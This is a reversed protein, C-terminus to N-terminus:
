KKSDFVLWGTDVIIEDKLVSDQMLKVIVKYPFKLDLQALDVMGSAGTIKMKEEEMMTLNNVTNIQIFSNDLPKVAKINLTNGQKDVQLNKPMAIICSMVDTPEEPFVLVTRGDQKVTPITQHNWVDVYHWDDPHSVLMFPGILRNDLSRDVEERGLQYVPYVCKDTVPFANVFVDARLDTVLPMPNDTLYADRNEHIIRSYRHILVRENWSYRNIEGFIDEWVIFGTGNFLANYILEDRDRAGRNINHVNHEPIIFRFLDVNPMKNTANGQQNWSGTVLEAAALDPRGESVFVNDPNVADLATRFAIDSEGMTDLFVGDSGIAKAIEAEREFHGTRGNMIDWPKYPIYVHVDRTHAKDVMEKVGPLGGPLDSYMDFQNRNDIGMRPYDHWLLMYDYGGFNLEGEDLFEDIRFRNDKPDYIDHGYLFTFHSVFRQRYKEQIPRKYYTFDFNARIYKKFAWFAAHWDGQHPSILCNLLETKQGPEQTLKFVRSILDNKDTFNLFFKSALFHFYVGNNSKENYIDIPMKPDESSTFYFIFDDANDICYFSNQTPLLYHMDATKGLQFRQLVPFYINNTVTEPDRYTRGGTSTNVLQVQWSLKASNDLAFTQTIVIPNEVYGSQQSITVAKRGEQQEETFTFLQYGVDSLSWPMRVSIFLLPPNGQMLDIGTTKDLLGALHIGKECLLKYQVSDNELIIYKVMDKNPLYQLQIKANGAVPFLYTCILIIIFIPYIKNKM